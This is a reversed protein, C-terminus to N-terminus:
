FSLRCGITYTRPNPVVAMEVGQLLASTANTLEPDFGPYKSVTFLNQGSVYVDMSHLGAKGLMHQPVSYTLSLNKLKVFNASYVFRSSNTPWQTTTSFHPIDTENQPTWMKTADQLTANRVGPAQGWTYALTQSYIQSGGQGAFMFTLSFNGSRLDNIFGWTFKPVGNGIPVYDSQNIHGDNNVDLFKADGPVNGYTGAQGVEKSKWTGLFKFGTFEGLPQGVKLISINAQPQGIGNVIINDQGNLNLVKNDNFSIEFHTTWNVRHTKPNLPTGSIGIEIGRNQIGGINTEYSGGGLYAPTQFFYLLNSIKKKYADVTVSLRNDLMTADVGVDTQLTTEWKLNTAIPPGLSTSVSPTNSDYYYATGNTNIQAISSYPPVGQNGTEGYSGRLKLTNFVRSNEMFRERSINWGLAVSPFASYKRTLVSSGDDRISATLLYKEKYAYNVRGMFSQLESSSYGSTTQQSQGLGLNYYGLAYTSLNASRANINQNTGEQYEFLGLVTIAHDGLHLDYTLFNSSQFAHSWTSNGQAYGATIGNVVTQSTNLGFFQRIWGYLTEYSNSSTFTLNKLLHYKIVGTGLADTSNADVLQSTEQAVPSVSLTGFASQITLQGTTPNRVPATPDFLVASAFPDGSDGAYATNRSSPVAIVVSFKLDLKDKVKFDLNSRLTARKYYQNLLLGPQDLYNFAFFYKSHSSGGSISAEYNQVLPKQTAARQWNTGPNAKFGALQADTFAPAASSTSAIQTNVTRAFDYANMLALYKPMEDKQLWAGMSLRPVGDHGTKTTIIVVGNSARSGYIATASADKLIELSEIDSPSISGLNAGIYGDIVYLPENSGTISNVGRIRVSLPTGPMGNASQVAVGPTTGQLAQEVRVIPRKAIEEAKVTSIAGTVDRKRQEGYGVIVVDGLSRTDQRLKITFNDRGRLAYQETLYGVFSIELVPNLQDGTNIHFNGQEDTLATITTGKIVVTAGAMPDENENLIRGHVDALPHLASRISDEIRIARTLEILVVRDMIRYSLPMGHLCIDLVTSLPADKVDISIVRSKDMVSENWLFSFDTQQEILRFAKEITIKKSSITISQSFSNASVHLSVGLIFIATIRMVLLLKTLLLGRGPVAKCHLTCKM